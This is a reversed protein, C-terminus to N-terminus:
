IFLLHCPPPRYLHVPVWGYIQGGAWPKLVDEPYDVARVLPRWCACSYVPNQGQEGTVPQSSIFYRCGGISTNKEVDWGRQCLIALPQPESRTAEGHAARPWGGWGLSLQEQARACVCTLHPLPPTEAPNNLLGKVFIAARESRSSSHKFQDSASFALQVCCPPPPSSPFLSLPPPSLVDDVMASTENFVGGGWVCVCECVGPHKIDFGVRQRQCGEKNLKWAAGCFGRAEEERQVCSAENWTCFKSVSSCCFLLWFFIM